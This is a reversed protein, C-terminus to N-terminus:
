VIFLFLNNYIWVTLLLSLLAGLFSMQLWSYEGKVHKLCCQKKNPSIAALSQLDYSFNVDFVITKEHKHVMSLGHM